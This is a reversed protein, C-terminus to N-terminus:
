WYCGGEVQNANQPKTKNEPRVWYENMLSTYSGYPISWEKVGYNPDEWRKGKIGFLLQLAGGMHIAKKGKRKIHAALPFGYAGCGILCIDYDKSDIEKKMFELAEFWNKFQTNDGGLSQVAEITELQFLPLIDPNKFLQTRHNNYQNIITKAFPHIVLVKKGELAKTWPKKSWFPELLRLHVFQANTLEKEFYRENDVWSGLIDVMPIDKIMLDGFRQMNEPTPPFFGSWQQMQNMINKNWWWEPQKGQIYQICSHTPTNVGLYNVLASLETSGFRAIMCPTDNTLLQYIITAVKDANEERQINPYYNSSIVKQHIKHLFKLLIISISKM